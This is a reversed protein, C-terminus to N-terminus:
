HVRWWAVSHERSDRHTMVQRRMVSSMFIAVSESVRDGVNGQRMGCECILTKSYMLVHKNRSSRMSLDHLTVHNMIMASDLLALLFPSCILWALIMSVKWLNRVSWRAMAVLIDSNSASFVSCLYTEFLAWQTCSVDADTQLDTILANFPTDGSLRHKRSTPPTSTSRCTLSTNGASSCLWWCTEM